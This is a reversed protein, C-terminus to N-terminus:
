DEKAAGEVLARRLARDVPPSYRVGAGAAAGPLFALLDSRYRDLRGVDDWGPVPQLDVELAAGVGPRWAKLTLTVDPKWALPRAAVYTALACRLGELAAPSAADADVDLSLTLTPPGARTLNTISRRSRPPLHSLPTSYPPHYSAHTAAV